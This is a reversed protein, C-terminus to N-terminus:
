PLFRVTLLDWQSQTGFRIPYISWGVGSTTFLSLGGAEYFGCLAEKPANSPVWLPGIIPFSVQGCHTHGSVAFGFVRPDVAGAPDHTMTIRVKGDCDKPFDIYRYRDTHKDGLGRICVPVGATEIQLIENEITVPVASARMERLWTEADTFTEYNGLVAVSPVPQFDTLASIIATRLSPVDGVRNPSTIYDGVLLVLDPREQKIEVILRRLEALAATGEHLHIDGVLGIRLTQEVGTGNSESVSFSQTNKETRLNDIVAFAFSLFGTAIVVAATTVRRVLKGKNM